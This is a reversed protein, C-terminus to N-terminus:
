HAVSCCCSGYVWPIYVLILIFDVPIILEDKLYSCYELSIQRYIYQLFPINILYCTKVLVGCRIISTQFNKKIFIINVLKAMHYNNNVVQSSV